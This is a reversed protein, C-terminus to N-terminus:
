PKEPPKPGQDDLKELRKVIAFLHIL